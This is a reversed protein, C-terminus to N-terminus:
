LVEGAPSLEGISVSNKEYWDEFRDREVADFLDATQDLDLSIVSASDITPTGTVRTM